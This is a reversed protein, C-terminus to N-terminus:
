RPGKRLTGNAQALYRQTARLESIEILCDRIILSVCGDVGRPISADAIEVGRGVITESKGFTAKASSESTSRPALVDQRCFDTPEELRHTRRPFVVVSSEVNRCSMLAHPVETTVADHPREFLAKFSETHVRHVDHIEMIRILM